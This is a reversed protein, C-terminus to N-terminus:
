EVLVTVTAAHHVAAIAVTGPVLLAPTSASGAAPVILDFAPPGSTSFLYETRDQNIFTVSSGAPVRICGPNCAGAVVAVTGTAIASSPSCPIGGDGGPPPEAPGLTQCASLLLALALAGPTAASGERRDSM